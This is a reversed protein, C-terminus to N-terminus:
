WYKWLNNVNKYEMWWGVRVHYHAIRSWSAMSHRYFIRAGRLPGISLQSKATGTSAISSEGLFCFRHCLSLWSVFIVRGFLVLSAREPCWLSLQNCSSCVADIYFIPSEVLHTYYFELCISSLFISFIFKFFSFSFGGVISSTIKFIIFLEFCYYLSNLELFCCLFLFHM